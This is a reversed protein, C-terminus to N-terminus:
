PLKISWKELKEIIFECINNGFGRSFHRTLIIRKCPYIKVKLDPYEEFEEGSLKFAEEFDHWYSKGYCIIAEPQRENYFEQIRFFRKERVLKEYYELSNVDIGFLENYCKPFSDKLSKKGLPYLNINCTKSGKKWLKNKRYNKWNSRWDRCSISIACAMKAAPNAVSFKCDTNDSVPIVSENYKRRILEKELNLDKKDTCWSEAEEIGVTWLIANPDGWGLYNMVIEFEKTLM